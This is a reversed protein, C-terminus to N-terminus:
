DLIDYNCGFYGKYGVNIYSGYLMMTCLLIVGGYLIARDLGVFFGGLFDYSPDRDAQASLLFWRFGWSRIGRYKGCQVLLNRLCFLDIYGELNSGELSDVNFITFILRIRICFGCLACLIRVHVCFGCLTHLLFIRIRLYFSCLTRLILATYTSLLRVIHAFAMCLRVFFGYVYAFGCGANRLCDASTEELALLLTFRWAVGHFIFAGRFLQPQFFALFKVAGTLRSSKITFSSGRESSSPSMRSSETWVSGVLSSKAQTLCFNANQVM